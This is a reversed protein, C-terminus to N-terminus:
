RSGQPAGHLCRRRTRWAHRCCEPTPPSQLHRARTPAARRARARVRARASVRQPFRTPFLRPRTEIRRLGIGLPRWFGARSLVPPCLSLRKGECTSSASISAFESGTRRAESRHFARTAWLQPSLVLKTARPLPSSLLTKTPVPAASPETIALSDTSNTSPKM